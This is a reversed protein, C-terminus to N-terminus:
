TISFHPSYGQYGTGPYEASREPQVPAPSPRRTSCTSRERLRGASDTTHCCGVHPPAWARLVRRFGRNGRRRYAQCSSNIVQGVM